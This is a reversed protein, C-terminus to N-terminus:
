FAWGNLVAFLGVTAISVWVAVLGAFVAALASRRAALAATVLAALVTVINGAISIVPNAVGSALVPYVMCLGILALIALGAQGQRARGATVLWYAAGLGAFLGIWVFPVIDSILRGLPGTMPLAEDLSGAGGPLLFILVVSVVSAAVAGGLVSIALGIPRASPVFSTM